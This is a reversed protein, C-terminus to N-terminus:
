MRRQYLTEVQEYGCRGYFAAVHDNPAIMQLLAADHARVWAEAQKLLRVGISGRSDPNVWWVLESAVHEGSFPHAYCWLAIMGIPASEVEAILIVANPNSLLQAAFSRLRDPATSLHSGYRTEQLFMSAMAVIAELDAETAERIVRSTALVTTTM